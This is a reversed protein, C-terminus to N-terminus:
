FQFYLFPSYGQAFMLGLSIVFGALCAVVKPVTLRELLQQSNPVCWVVLAAVAMWLLNPWAFLQQTLLNAAPNEGGQGAFMVGLYGTAMAFHDARFFVWTVLLVVFTLAVRLPRPLPGYLPKRGRWRELALMLGHIAGWVLFTTAAGHWLGGIVMVM